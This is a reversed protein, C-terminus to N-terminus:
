IKAIVYKTGNTGDAEQKEFIVTGDDAISINYIDGWANNLLKISTATVWRYGDGMQAVTSGNMVCSFAYNDGFTFQADRTSETGDAAIQKVVTWAGLLAANKASNYSLVYAVNNSVDELTVYGEQSFSLRLVRSPNLIDAFENASKWRYTGSSSNGDRTMTYSFTDTFEFSMAPVSIVDGTSVLISKEVTWSGVLASQYPSVYAEGAGDKSVLMHKNFYYDDLVMTYDDVLEVGVLRGGHGNMILLIQNESVLRYSGLTTADIKRAEYSGDLGLVFELGVDDTYDAGTSKDTSKSVKWEGSIKARLADFTDVWKKLTYKEGTTENTFALGETDFNFTLTDVENKKEYVLNIKTEGKWVYSAQYFSASRNVNYMKNDATFEFTSGVAVPDAVGNKDLKEVVEWVGIIKAANANNAEENKKGECNLVGVIIGFCLCALALIVGISIWIKKSM